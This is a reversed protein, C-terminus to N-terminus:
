SSQDYARQLWDLVEADVEEPARLSLQLPTTEHIKSPQLRGAPAQGDLRLALDVRDKKTPQVRAFTRRPTVLSIYTKRTQVAVEGLGAAADLIADLVPRLQPRDAYQGEILEDASALFFDPYGFREMVLLTQAYGTVGQEALWARLSEKDTLGEKQIRRNWADVGEGTREELLRASMDRMGKWDRVPASTRAKGAETMARKPDRSMSKIFEARRFRLASWDEDIAIMRVGEFGEKGLAEWGSDRNFECQYKKSSKKPYAIWVIADGQARAAVARAIEALRKEQTVFALVFGTDDGDKLDRHVTVGSLGALEPEFSAPADLIWIDRQAKLNLKEFITPM